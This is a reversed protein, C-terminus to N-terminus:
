SHSYTEQSISTNVGEHLLQVEPDLQKEPFTRVVEQSIRKIAVGVGGGLFFFGCFFLCVFFFLLM